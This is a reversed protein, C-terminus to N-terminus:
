TNMAQNRNVNEGHATCLRKRHLALWAAASPQQRAVAAGCPKGAKTIGRCLPVGYNEVWEYYQELTLRYYRAAWGDPDADYAAADADSLGITEGGHAATLCAFVEVWSGDNLPRRKRRRGGDDDMAM